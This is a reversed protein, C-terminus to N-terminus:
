EKYSLEDAGGETNEPEYLGFVRRFPISNLYAQLAFLLFLWLFFIFYFVQPFFVALILPLGNIVTVVVTNVPYTVALKMSNKLTNKVTNDFRAFVPFVYTFLVTHVALAIYVIYRGPEWIGLDLHNYLYLILLIFGGSLGWILTLVVSQGFHSKFAALYSRIIKYEEDRAMKLTVSYLASTAAGITILPVCTLVYLVNLVFLDAFRNIWKTAPGDYAFFSAM